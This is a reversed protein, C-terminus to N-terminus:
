GICFENNQLGESNSNRTSDNLLRRRYALTLCMLWYAVREIDEFSVTEFTISCNMIRVSINIYVCRLFYLKNFVRSAM